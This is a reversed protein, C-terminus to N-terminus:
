PAVSMERLNHLGGGMPQFDVEFPYLDALALLIKRSGPDSPYLPQTKFQSQVERALSSRCVISLNEVAYVM